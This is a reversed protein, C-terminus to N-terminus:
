VAKPLEIVFVAGHPENDEVRVDGGYTEVLTEVLYLGIGTGESELGKEGKGFVTEKQDDPVGPGNDAIRVVVTEDRETASVRVEPIEKDNHNVANTLLNRFVSDLMDDAIVSVRPISGEVTIAANSYESRIEDLEGDLRSRLDVQQRSDETSLMVDAIDGATQTLEVAHAASEQITEVYEQGEDDVQNALFDAYATVLQLDNRIDHRLMQNLVDLDDRQEKLRQEYQKRESIDQIVGDFVTKGDVESTIATVAGWMTEDRLTRLELERETVVSAERLQESFEEREAADVYLDRVSHHHLDSKSDADFLDVMAENVFTFEGDPGPTNQYVGIPLNEVLREYRKLAQEREKRETIDQVVKHVHETGIEDTTLSATIVVDRREGDLTELTVERKVPADDADHLAELLEERAEPDAYFDAVCHERLQDASEAGLLSVLAPNAYEFTGDPTTDTRLVGSPVTELLHHSLELEQQYQKRDTVDEQFGVYNTVEGDGDRVPAMTVRNWFQTGDKRYNRLEVTVPKEDDIARRIETVPESGTEEGQLFRCNRGLVEDESYGTLHQFEENVYILPNDDRDPDTITIGIPAAEIARSKREFNM